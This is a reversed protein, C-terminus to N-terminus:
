SQMLEIRSSLVKRYIIMHFYQSRLLDAAKEGIGSPNFTSIKDIKIDLEQHETILRELATESPNYSKEFVEKPSWSIYGKHDPHNPEGGDVYEVLYGEVKGNEDDPLAWGRYENYAGLTMLTALLTKTGTYKRMNDM